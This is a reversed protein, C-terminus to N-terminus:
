RRRSKEVMLELQLEVRKMTELLESRSVSKSDVSDIKTELQTIKKDSSDVKATLSQVSNYTVAGATISSIALFAFVPPLVKDTFWGWPHTNNM